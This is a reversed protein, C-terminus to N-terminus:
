RTRLGFGNTIVWRKEIELEKAEELIGKMIDFCLFPEGGHVTVSQLPETPKLEALWKEADELSM